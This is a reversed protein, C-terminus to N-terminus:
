IIISNLQVRVALELWRATCSTYIMDNQRYKTGEQKSELSAEAWLVIEMLIVTLSSRMFKILGNKM